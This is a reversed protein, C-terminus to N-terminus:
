EIPELFFRDEDDRVAEDVQTSPPTSPSPQSNRGVSQLEDIRRSEQANKWKGIVRSIKDMLEAETLSVLAGEQHGFIESKEAMKRREAFPQIPAAPQRPTPSPEVPRERPTAPRKPTQVPIEEPQRVPEPTATGVPSVERGELLAEYMALDMVVVARGSEKDAVVFKDGHQAVLAIIKEVMELNM